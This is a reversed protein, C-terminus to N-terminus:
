AKDHADGGEEGLALQLQHRARSLRQRAAAPSIHLIDAIQAASLDEYYYLHIITRMDPRLSQLAADLNDQPMNQTDPLNDTLPLTLRRWASRFLNISQHATTRLLWAKLHAEDRISPAHRMLKLLVEQSIDEADFRSRTRAYALRYVMPLYKDTALTLWDDPTHHSDTM